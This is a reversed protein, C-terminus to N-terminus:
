YKTGTVRNIMLVDHTDSRVKLEQRKVHPSSYHTFSVGCTSRQSKPLLTFTWKLLRLGRRGSSTPEKRSSHQRLSILYRSPPPSIIQTSPSNSSSFNEEIATQSKEEDMLGAPPQEVQVAVAHSKM